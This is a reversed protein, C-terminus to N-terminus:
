IRNDISIPGFFESLIEDDNFPWRVDLSYSTVSSAADVGIGSYGPKPHPPGPQVVM